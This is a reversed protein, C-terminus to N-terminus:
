PLLLGYPVYAGNDHICQARIGLIHGNKKCAVQVQWWQDRQQNTSVFNERRDEIWKVPRGLKEAAMAIVLEEAYHVAKPGFGGGVDPALVRISSEERELYAALYRRVLFPSQTSSWLTLRGGAVDPQALVGRCEMFHPAGRHQFYEEEFVHDAEAFAKDIDGFKWNLTAALNSAFTTQVPPAEPKLADRADIVCPLTELDLEIAQVGDEALYRSEAIVVAIPEGVYCVEDKALPYPTIDTKIAPNPYAQVMRQAAQPGLDELAYAAIVGPIARAASLDISKIRAHAESSRLFAASLTGPIKIDDVYKGKGTILRGDEIRHVAAGLNRVGM